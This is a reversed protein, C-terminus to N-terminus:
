MVVDLVGVAVLEGVTLGGGEEGVKEVL